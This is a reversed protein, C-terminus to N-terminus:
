MRRVAQHPVLQIESVLSCLLSALYLQPLNCWEMSQTRSLDQSLHCYYYVIERASLTLSVSHPSSDTTDPQKEEFSGTETQQM